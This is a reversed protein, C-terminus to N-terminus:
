LGWVVPKTMSYIRFISNDQLVKRSELDSYGYSHFSVLKGNKLLATQVCPIKGDDVLENVKGIFTNLKKTSIGLSEPEIKIHSSKKSACSSLFILLFLQFLIKIIM